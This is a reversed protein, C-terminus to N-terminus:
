LQFAPRPSAHPSGPGRPIERTMFHSAWHEISETAGDRDGSAQGGRGMRRGGRLGISTDWELSTGPLLSQGRGGRALHKMSIFLLAWLRRVAGGHAM